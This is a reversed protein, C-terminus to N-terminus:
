FHTPLEEAMIHESFPIGREFSMAEKTLQQRFEVMEKKLSQWIGPPQDGAAEKCFLPNLIASGVVQDLAPVPAPANYELALDHQLHFARTDDMCFWCGMVGATSWRFAIGYALLDKVTWMLAARMIFAQDTAHDYTRVGLHWLQVALVFSDACLGVRVNHSEEAFDPYMQDFYKWAEADSPRCMSGEETQCAMNHAAHWTIHKATARSSYLRQLRPTLLLYRLVAYPSKKRHPDRGRSPKYRADGCFKCYELDVGDKCYLICGNKYAHIKEIPLSLDKVLKKTNYYDGSLTHDSPLIEVIVGLQSQTYGDWLPQDAAHVINSFRDTLRSEDYDYPGSGYCYSSPDADMPCSRTGDTLVGEHSSAFYSLGTADFVM